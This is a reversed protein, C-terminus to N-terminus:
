GLLMGMGIILNWIFHAIIMIRIDKFILYGIGYIVGSILYFINGTGFNVTHIFAFMCATIIVFIIPNKFFNRGAMRFVIEEWVPALIVVTIFAGLPFIAGFETAILSAPADELVIGSLTIVVIIGTTLVFDIVVFLVAKLPIKFTFKQKWADMLETKNLFVVAVTLIVDLLVVLVIIAITIEVNSPLIIRWFLVLMGIALTIGWRTKDNNSVTEQINNEKM